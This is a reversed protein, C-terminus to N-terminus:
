ELEAEKLHDRLDGAKERLRRADERLGDELYAKAQDECTAIKARLLQELKELKAHYEAYGEAIQEKTLWSSM